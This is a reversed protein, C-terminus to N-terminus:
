KEPTLLQGPSEITRKILQLPYSLIDKAASVSVNPKDLSGTIQLGVTISKDKGVLIYGVLPISGLAKGLERAVQIALEINITKKKLDLEGKGVITASDGKIYISDFIIKSQEVMRYDIVGSTIVFGENSYGPKHLTALAPLTNVFALTNNYAKFDRMVGGEVIIEGKMVKEPNGRKTISYRGYQLGDFNILPHLVKDKIRLAQLSLIDKKKTFKIIDGDTSGIAKIDGNPKIEVDYSDTILSYEGYRLNSKTGLIIVSKSTKKKQSKKNKKSETALFKQLDINLNHLKIRSKAKNFHLRKNFAYFNVDMACADGEFFVKTKCVNNEEYLFCTNRRLLGKFQYNEFDKTVIHINGGEEIPLANSLYPKVKNLDKINLTYENNKQIFALTFKPVEVHIGAKYELTFPIKQNKFDIIKENEGGLKLYEVDFVSTLKKKKIDLNGNITGAYYNNKLVMDNISLLGNEYVINASVVPLSVKQIQVDGKSLNVETVFHKYDSKLGIDM